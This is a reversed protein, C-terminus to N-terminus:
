SNKRLLAQQIEFAFSFMMDNLTGQRPTINWVQAVEEFTLLERDKVQKEELSALRQKIEDLENVENVEKSETLKTFPSYDGLWKEIEIATGKGINKQLMLTGTKLAFYIDDKSACGAAILGRRARTSLPARNIWAQQVRM